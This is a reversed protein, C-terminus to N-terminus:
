KNIQQLRFLKELEKVYKIVEDMQWEDLRDSRVDTLYESLSNHRKSKFIEIEEIKYHNQQLCISMLDDILYDIFAYNRYDFEKFGTEESYKQKIKEILEEM